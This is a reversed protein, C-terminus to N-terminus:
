SLTASWVRPPDCDPQLLRIMAAHQNHETSSTTASWFSGLTKRPDWTFLRTNTTLNKSSKLHCTKLASLEIWLEAAAKRHTWAWSCWIRFECYLEHRLLWYPISLAIWSTTVVVSHVACNVLNCAIHFIYCLEWRHDWFLWRWKSLLVAISLSWSGIARTALTAPRVIKSPMICTVHRWLVFEVVGFNCRCSPDCAWFRPQLKGLSQFM